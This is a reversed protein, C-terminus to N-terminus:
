VDHRLVAAEDADDEAADGGSDTMAGETTALDAELDAMRALKDDLEGQLPFAEGLRPKYGALRSDADARRRAHDEIEDEFHDLM